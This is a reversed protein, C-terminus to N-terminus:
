IKFIIKFYKILPRKKFERKHIFHVKLFVVYHELDLKLNSKDM